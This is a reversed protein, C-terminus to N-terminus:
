MGNKASPPPSPAAAAVSGTASTTTSAPAPATSITFAVWRDLTIKDEEARWGEEEGGAEAGDAGSWLVALAVSRPM